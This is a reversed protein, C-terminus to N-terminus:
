KGVTRGNTMTMTFPWAHMLLFPQSLLEAVVLQERRGGERALQEVENNGYCSQPAPGKTVKQYLMDQVTIMSVAGKQCLQEQTMSGTRDKQQLQWINNGNPQRKLSDIIVVPWGLKSCVQQHM